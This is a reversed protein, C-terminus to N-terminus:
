FYRGPGQGGWEGYEPFTEYINITQFYLYLYIFIRSLPHQDMCHTSIQCSKPVKVAMPSFFIDGNRSITLISGSNLLYRHANHYLGPHPLSPIEPFFPGGLFLDSLLLPNEVDLFCVTIKHFPQFFFRYNRKCM